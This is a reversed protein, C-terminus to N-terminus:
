IALRRMVSYWLVDLPMFLFHVAIVGVVVAGAASAVLTLKRRTDRRHDTATMIPPIIGLTNLQTVRELANRGRITKDLAEAVGVAAAALVLAAFVGFTIILPRNPSVPKEPPLPPEILTLREGKRDSEMNAALRAEMERARIESYKARANDLDRALAYYDKEIVPTRALKREFDRVRAALEIKLENLSQEEANAAALQARLQTVAPDGLSDDLAGEDFAAIRREVERVSPHESTYRELLQEREAVLDELLVPVDASDDRRSLRTKLASVERRIRVVDPHEDSYGSELSALETELFKLRDATSYVREGSSTYASTAGSRALKALEAELYIRREALSRLQRDVETMERETRDMLNMNLEALEPLQELNEAKFQSLAAELTQIERSLRSAENELFSATESVQQNRSEINKDLFLTTLENAVKLALDPTAGRYGLTFAITAETPRGSRPDVVEASIMNMSIDDRMEALVVERARSRVLRPYLDYKNIISLLNATTMVQQSIIQVRQDAYSTITSRVMEQPIEQQEILITAASEYRTPWLFATAVAVVVIGLFTGILLKRRRAIARLYDDLGQENDSTLEPEGGYVLETM